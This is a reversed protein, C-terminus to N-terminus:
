QQLGKLEINTKKNHQTRRNHSSKTTKIKRARQSSGGNGPKPEPTSTKSTTSNTTATTTTTTNKPKRNFGGGFFYNEDLVKYRNPSKSLMKFWGEIQEDSWKTNKKLEQREQSKRSTKMFAQDGKTKFIEFLYMENPDIASASNEQKGPVPTGSRPTSDEFASGSTKEQDDYTDDPEDEDEDYLMKLSSILLNNRDLKVQKRQKKGHIITTDSFDLKSIKDDDYVSRHTAEVTQSPKSSKKITNSEIKPKDILSPDELLLNTLNEVNQEHEVLLQKARIQTLNPFLDILMFIDGENVHVDDLSSESKFKIQNLLPLKSGLQPFYELIQDSILISAFLPYQKLHGASTISLEKETLSVLKATSTSLLSLIMLNKVTDRYITPFLNELVKIWHLNVFSASFTSSQKQKSKVNVSSNDMNFKTIKSLQPDLLITFNDLDITTFENNLIKYNLFNQLKAIVSDFNLLSRVITANNPVYVSVFNWIMPGDDDNDEIFRLLGYKKLFQFIYIRLVATNAKIDPNIAGLSFIRSSEISTEHLYVKLFKVLQQFSKYTLVKIDNQLLYKILKIYAELLHVWIVPDKDILSSRLKFPPYHPIPIYVSHPAPSIDSQSDM